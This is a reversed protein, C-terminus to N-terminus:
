VKKKVMSYQVFCLDNSNKKRKENMIKIIPLFSDFYNSASTFLKESSEQKQLKKEIGNKSTLLMLLSHPKFKM